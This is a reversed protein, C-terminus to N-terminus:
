NGFTAMVQIEDTTQIQVDHVKLQGTPFSFVPKSKGEFKALGPRILGVILPGLAEDGDCKLSSLKANMANDIDVHARFRMGAPIFGVRTSLHLDLSVSRGSEADLKLSVKEISVGYKKAGERMTVLLIRELDTRTASFDLRAQKADALMMIPRGREDHQLDLRARSATFHLNMKARDCLLPRGDLEFERAFIQGEVRGTPKSGQNDKTLDMKGGGLEMRLASLAPYRTGEVSVISDEQSFKLTHRWGSTLSDLLQQRSAPMTGAALPFVCVGKADFWARPKHPKAAQAHHGPQDASWMILLCLGATAATRVRPLPIRRGMRRIAHLPFTFAAPAM